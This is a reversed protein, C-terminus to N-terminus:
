SSGNTIYHVKYTVDCFDGSPDTLFPILQCAYRRVTLYQNDSQGPDLHLWVHWTHLFSNTAKGTLHISSPQWQWGILYLPSVGVVCRRPWVCDEYSCVNISQLGVFSGAVVYIYMSHMRFSRGFLGPKWICMFLTSVASKLDNHSDCTQLKYVFYLDEFYMTITRAMISVIDDTSYLYLLLYTRFQLCTRFINWSIMPKKTYTSYSCM